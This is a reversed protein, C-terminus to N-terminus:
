SGAAWGGPTTVHRYPRGLDPLRYLNAAVAYRATVPVVQQWTQGDALTLNWTASVTGNRLLVLVYRTTNGQQNSVGLSATRANKDRASLWLQTFGPNHQLAVGLRAVALGCAAIVVAAGFAVAHRPPLLRWAGRPWAFPAARGARRRLFLAVGGVLTMGALLGLWADRHLPVRAAYLLLGGLIPVVLALGTVVVARELGGIPSGLLQGLLYGPAAFLAMGLVATVAVPAGGAAAGCALVAVAAIVALDAHSGRM